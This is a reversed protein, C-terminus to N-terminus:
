TQVNQCTIVECESLGAYAKSPPPPVGKYPRNPTVEEGPRKKRAKSAFGPFLARPVLNYAPILAAVTNLAAPGRQGLFIYLKAPTQWHRIAERIAQM